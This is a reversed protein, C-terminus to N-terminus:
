KTLILKNNQTIRLRYSFGAHEIILERRGGFLEGAGITGAFALPHALSEDGGPATPVTRPALTTKM